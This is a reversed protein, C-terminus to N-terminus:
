RTPPPRFAGTPAIKKFEIVKAQNLTANLVFYIWDLPAGSTPTPDSIWDGERPLNTSEALRWPIGAIITEKRKRNSTHYSMGLEAFSKWTQDRPNWLDKTRTSDARAFTSGERMGGLGLSVGCENLTLPNGFIPQRFIETTSSPEAKTLGPRVKM